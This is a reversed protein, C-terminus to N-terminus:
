KFDPVASNSHALTWASPVLADRKTPMEVPARQPQKCLVNDQSNSMAATRPSGPQPNNDRTQLETVYGVQWSWGCVGVLAKQRHSLSEGKNKACLRGCAWTRM